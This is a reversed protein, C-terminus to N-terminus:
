FLRSFTLADFPGNTGSRYYDKRRGVIAFGHKTYLVEAPNGQRMELFLRTSGRARASAVFRRMLAHGVGGGRAQPMVAILLLEEEDAAQRSLAFGVADEPRDPELGREDALLFHTNPFSLADSVQRRNWAEGYAPEFAAEMVAMIADLSDMM